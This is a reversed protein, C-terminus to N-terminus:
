TVVRYVIKSALPSAGLSEYFAQAGVNSMDTTWEVRPLGRRRAVDHLGDMLLRGV